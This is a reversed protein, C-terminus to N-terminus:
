GTLQRDELGGWPFKDKDEELRRFGRKGTKLSLCVLRTAM